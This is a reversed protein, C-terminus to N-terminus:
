KLLFELCLHGCNFSNFSQFIDYNYVVICKGSSNLYNVVEIPPRLNGFSDFYVIKNRNKKYATWHTGPGNVSDLNIIGRECSRIKSPLYDRSFVGRFYPIKWVKAYKM